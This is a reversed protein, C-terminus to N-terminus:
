GAGARPTSRASTAARGAGDDREVVPKGGEVGLLRRIAVEYGLDLSTELVRRAQRHGIDRALEMLERDAADDSAAPDSELAEDALYDLSVGLARSLRRAYELSPSSKGRLLRSVESDSVASLQALRQQNLGRVLMQKYVKEAFTM